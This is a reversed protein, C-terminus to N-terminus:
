KDQDGLDLNVINQGFWPALIKWRIEHRDRGHLLAAEPLIIFNIELGVGVGKVKGAPWPEEVKFCELSKTFYNKVLYWPSLTNIIKIWTSAAVM